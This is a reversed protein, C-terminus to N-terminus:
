TELLPIKCRQQIPLLDFKWKQGLTETPQSIQSGTWFNNTNLSTSVIENLYM